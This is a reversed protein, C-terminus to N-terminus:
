KVVCKIYHVSHFFAKSIWKKHTNLCVCFTQESTVKWSSLDFETQNLLKIYYPSAMLSMMLTPRGHIHSELQLECWYRNFQVTSRWQLCIIGIYCRSRQKKRDKKERKIESLLRHSWAQAKLLEWIQLLFVGAPDRWQQAEWKGLFGM